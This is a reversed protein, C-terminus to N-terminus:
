MSHQMIKSADVEGTKLCRRRALLIDLLKLIESFEDLMKQVHTPSDLAQFMSGIEFRNQAKMTVHLQNGSLLCAMNTNPFAAEIDAIASQFRVCMVTNLVDPDTSLIHVTGQADEYEAFYYRGRGFRSPLPKEGRSIITTDATIRDLQFSLILGQFILRLSYYSGWWEYKYLSLERIEFYRGLHHGEFADGVVRKRHRPLVGYGSLTKILVKAKEGLKHQWGLGSTVTEIIYKKFRLRSPLIVLSFGILPIIFPLFFAVAYVRHTRYGRTYSGDNQSILYWSLWLCPLVLLAAVCLGWKVRTKRVAEFKALDPMMEMQFHADIGSLEHRDTHLRPNM